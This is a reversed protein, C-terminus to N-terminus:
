SLEGFSLKRVIIVYLVRFVHWPVETEIFFAIQNNGQSVHPILRIKLEGFIHLIDVNYKSSMVMHYQLFYNIFSRDYFTTTIESVYSQNM